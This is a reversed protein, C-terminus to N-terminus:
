INVEVGNVTVDGEVHIVICRAGDIRKMEVLDTREPDVDIVVSDGANIEFKKADVINSAVLGTGQGFEDNYRSEFATLKEEPIECSELLSSIERRSVELPEADKKRESLQGVLNDHLTQVVDFTLKEDLAESLVDQFAQRQDESSAPAETGFVVDIFEAHINDGARTYFQAASLNAGGDAFAPYMFGLEPSGVALDPEVTHFERDDSFFTLLPKTLKVPCVALLMYNFVEGDFDPRETHEAHRNRPLDMADHLMLLLYNGEFELADIISKCLTEVASDDKLESTQLRRLLQGSPDETHVPLEFQNRCPNGGLVKKFTALYHEAESTPLELPSKAFTSVIEKKENVYCGRIVSIANKDPSYRRRIQAIDKRNM